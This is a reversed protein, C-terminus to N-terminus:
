QVSVTVPLSSGKYDLLVTVDMRGDALPSLLVDTVTVDEEALAEAAFQRAASLRQSPQEKGLLYLRSGLEPLLPFQGRRASLRFLVRQLLANEGSCRLIGGLHDPIYDGNQLKAEM